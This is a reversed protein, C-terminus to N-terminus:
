VVTLDRLMDVTIREVMGTGSRLQMRATTDFGAVTGRTEGTPRLRVKVRQGILASRREYAAAVGTAGDAGEELSDSVEGFADLVSTLLEERAQPGVIGLATADIRFTVVAARVRGPALQAESLVTAVTTRGSGLLILDPWWTGLGVPDGTVAAPGLQEIGAVVALSGILWGLDAAEADLPPRLVIAGALTDGPGAPWEAGLRGLANIEHDVLLAAGHPASEQRSWALAMAGASVAVPFRRFPHGGRIMTVPQGGSSIV